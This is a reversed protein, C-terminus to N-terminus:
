RALVARSDEFLQVTRVIEEAHLNDLRVYEGGMREALRQAAHTNVLGTETDIVVRLTAVDQIGTCAAELDADVGVNGRGDTLVVLLTVREPRRVKERALVELSKTLGAALPTRGGVPLDEMRERALEVSDTPELVLEARDGKFAILGVRDRKQYAETLLSLVAAKTEQMRGQAGMSGSADVLFLVLTGVKRERVKERLDGSTIHLALGDGSDRREVQHPAAARFTADFAIDRPKDGPIRSGVYRGSGDETRSTVRKGDGTRIAQDSSPTFSHAHFPKGATMTTEQSADSRSEGGHHHHQHETTDGTETDTEPPPQAAVQQLQQKDLHPEEFPKRRM